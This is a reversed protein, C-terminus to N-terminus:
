LLAQGGGSGVDLNKEATGRGHDASHLLGGLSEAVGLGARDALELVLDEAESSHAPERFTIAKPEQRVVHFQQKSSHLM